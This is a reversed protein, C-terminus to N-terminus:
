SCIGLFRVREGSETFNEEVDSTSSVGATLNTGAFADNTVAFIAFTTLFNGLPVVMKGHLMGHLTGSM